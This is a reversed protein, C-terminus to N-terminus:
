LRLRNKVTRTIHGEGDLFVHQREKGKSLDVRYAILDKKHNLRIKERDGTIQWGPFKTWIANKVAEPLEAHKIIEKYSLLKGSKDYVATFQKGSGAASVQYFQTSTNALDGNRESVVWQQGYLAHPLFALDKVVADPFDKKVSTMVAQPEEGKKVRTITVDEEQIQAWGTGTSLSVLLLAVHLTKM